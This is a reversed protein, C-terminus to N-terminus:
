GKTKDTSFSHIMGCKVVEKAAFAVLSVRDSLVWEQYVYFIKIGRLMVVLHEGFYGGWTYIPHLLTFAGPFSSDNMEMKIM